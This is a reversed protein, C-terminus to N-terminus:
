ESDSAVFNVYPEFLSWDRHHGYKHLLDDLETAEREEKQKYVYISGNKWGADFILIGKDPFWYIKPDREKMYEEKNDFIMPQSRHISPYKEALKSVREVVENMLETLANVAEKNDDEVSPTFYLLTTL